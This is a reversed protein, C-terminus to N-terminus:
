EEAYPQHRHRRCHKGTRTRLGEANLTKPIILFTVWGPTSQPGKIPRVLAKIIAEFPGPLSPILKEPRGPKRKTKAM